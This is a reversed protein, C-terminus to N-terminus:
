DLGVDIKYKEDSLLSKGALVSDIIAEYRVFLWKKAACNQLYIEM